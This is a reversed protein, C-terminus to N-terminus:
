QNVISWFQFCYISQFWYISQGNVLSSFFKESVHPNLWFGISVRSGVERSCGSRCWRAREASIALIFERHSGITFGHSHHQPLKQLLFEEAAVPSVPITSGLCELGLALDPDYLKIIKAVPYRGFRFFIHPRSDIFKCLGLPKTKYVSAGQFPSPLLDFPWPSNPCRRFFLVPDYCFDQSGACGTEGLRTQASLNHTWHTGPISGRVHQRCFDVIPSMERDWFWLLFWPNKSLFTSWEVTAGQERDFFHKSVNHNPAGIADRGTSSWHWGPKFSPWKACYRSRRFWCLRKRPRGTSGM